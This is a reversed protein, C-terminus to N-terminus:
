KFTRVVPRKVAGREAGTTAVWVYVSRAHGNSARASVASSNVGPVAAINRGQLDYLTVILSLPMGEFGSAKRTTPKVFEGIIAATGGFEYAGLDPAIGNYPLGVDVGKDILDSGSILRAFNNNPLSGDAQRPAKALAPDLSLFDAESATVSTLNWSNNQQITGSSFEYEM